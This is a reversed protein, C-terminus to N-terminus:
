GEIFKIIVDEVSLDRDVVKFVNFYGDKIDKGSIVNKIMVAKLFNILDEPNKSYFSPSKRSAYQKTKTDYIILYKCEEFDPCYKSTIFEGSSPVALKM